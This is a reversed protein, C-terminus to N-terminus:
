DLDDITRYTKNSLKTKPKRVVKSGLNGGGNKSEEIGRQYGSQKAKSIQDKYYENLSYIADEGKLAFWIM